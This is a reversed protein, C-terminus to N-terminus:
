NHKISSKWCKGMLKKPLQIRRGGRWVRISLMTIKEIFTLFPKEKFGGRGGNCDQSKGPRKGKQKNDAVQLVTGCRLEGNLHPGVRLDERQCVEEMKGTAVLDM